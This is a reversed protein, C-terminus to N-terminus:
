NNIATKIDKEKPLIMTIIHTTTGNELVKFLKYIHTENLIINKDEIGYSLPVHPSCPINQVIGAIEENSDGITKKIVFISNSSDDCVNWSIYVIKNLYIINVNSIGNGIYNIEEAIDQDPFRPYLFPKADQLLLIPEISDYPQINTYYINDQAKSNYNIVIFGLIITLTHLSKKM